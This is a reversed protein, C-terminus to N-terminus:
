QAAEVRNRGAAKARYLAVDANAILVSATQGPESAGCGISVTMELPGAETPIPTSAAQRMREALALSAALDCGPFVAILEDGGYRGLAAQPGLIRALRSAIERLVEDGALHGREDNLHKFHDVDVLLICLKGGEREARSLEEDLRQM